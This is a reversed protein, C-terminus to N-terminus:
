DVIRFRVMTETDGWVSCTDTGIIHIQKHMAYASLLASLFAQGAPTTANFAWRAPLTSGCAPVSSRVGNQNFLVAGGDMMWINTVYAPGSESARAAPALGLIGACLLAGFLRM